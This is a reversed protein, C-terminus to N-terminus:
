NVIFYKGSSDPSVKEITGNINDVGFYNTTAPNPNGDGDLLETKIIYYENNDIITTKIHDFEYKEKKLNDMYNNDVFYVKLLDIGEGATYVASIQLNYINTVVQSAVGEENIAIVKFVNNGRPMDIATTYRTSNKSPISGDLTYYINFGEEGTVTIITNKTYNGSEPSVIPSPLEALKIDYDYTVIVSVTGSDSVSIAKLITKGVTKIEIPNEYKASLQTPESDDLTYYISSANSSTLEVTIYKDYSGSKINAKPAAVGYVSIVDYIDQDDISNILLNADEERDNDLYLIILAEYYSVEKSDLKILEKLVEIIEEDKDGIKIYTKWLAEKVKIKQEDTKALKQAELLETLALDYSKDQYLEIGKDYISTFNSKNGNLAFLTAMIAIILIVVAISIGIIIKKKKGKNNDINIEEIEDERHLDFSKTKDDFKNSDIDEKNIDILDLEDENNEVINNEENLVKGVSSALEAEILNFDPVVQIPSGCKICFAQNNRCKEGCKSCKM